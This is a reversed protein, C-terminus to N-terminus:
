RYLRTLIAHRSKIYVRFIFPTTVAGHCIPRGRRGNGEQVGKAPGQRADRPPWLGNLQLPITKGRSGIGRAPVLRHRDLDLAVPPNSAHVYSVGARSWTPRSRLSRPPPPPPLARPGRDM